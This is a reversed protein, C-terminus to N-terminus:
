EAQAEGTEVVALEVEAPAEAVMEAQRAIPYTAYREVAAFEPSPVQEVAVAPM